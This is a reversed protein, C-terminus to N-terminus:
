QASRSFAANPEEELQNGYDRGPTPGAPPNEGVRTLYLSLKQITSGFIVKEADITDVELIVTMTGGSPQSTTVSTGAPNNSATPTILPTAGAGLVDLV